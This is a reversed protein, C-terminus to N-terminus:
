RRQELFSRLGRFLALAAQLRVTPDAMMRAEAPNSLFAVECLAAPAQSLRLIYFAAARVGRDRTQLERLLEGQVASAFRQGEWGDYFYTETGRAEPDRHSNCHISLLAASDQSNAMRVRADLSVTEDRKRTLVVGAGALELVMALKLAMDLNVAKEQLQDPGVAGPDEGGHGPDVVLRQGRFAPESRQIIVTGTSQDWAVQAGLLTALSRVPGFVQDQWVTIERDLTQRVGNVLAVDSGVRLEICRDLRALVLTHLDPQWHIEYGLNEAVVRVGVSVTQRVLRPPTETELARGNIVLHIREAM